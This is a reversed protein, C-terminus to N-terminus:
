VAVVRGKVLVTSSSYLEIALVTSSGYLEPALVM